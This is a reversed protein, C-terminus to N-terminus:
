LLRADKRKGWLSQSWSSQLKDLCAIKGITGAISLIKIFSSNEVELGVWCSFEEEASIQIRVLSAGFGYDRIPRQFIRQRVEFVDGFGLEDSLWRLVMDLNEKIDSRYLCLIGNIRQFVTVPLLEKVRRLQNINVFGFVITPCVCQDFLSKAEEMVRKNTQYLRSIGDFLEPIQNPKLLAQIKRSHPWAAYVQSVSHDHLLDSADSPSKILIWFYDHYIQNRMEAPLDLFSNKARIDAM